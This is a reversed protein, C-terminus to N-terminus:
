RKLIKLRLVAVRRLAVLEDVFGKVKFRAANHEAREWRHLNKDTPNKLYKHWTWTTPRWLYWPISIQIFQLRNLYVACAIAAIYIDRTLDGQSRYKVMVKIGLKKAIRFKMKNLWSCLRTKCQRDSPIEMDITDTWRQEWRLLEFCNAMCEYAWESKDETRIIEKCNNTILDGFGSRMRFRYLDTEWKKFPGRYYGNILILKDAPM